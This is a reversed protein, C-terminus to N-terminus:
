TSRIARKTVRLTTRAIGNLLAKRQKESTGGWVGDQIRNVLAYNLCAERVSCVSCYKLAAPLDKEDVPYMTDPGVYRCKAQERWEESKRETISRINQALKSSSEEQGLKLPQVQRAQELDSKCYTQELSDPASFVEYDM